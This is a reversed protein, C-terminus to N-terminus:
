AHIPIVKAAPQQGSVVAGLHRDWKALADRKEGDYGHRDYVRTIGAETHNLLKSVVLRSIGIGTMHSAATRRLDHFRFQFGLRKRLREIGWVGAETTVPGNYRVGPFVLAADPKESSRLARLIMLAEGVLPVRHSKGNKAREASITWWPAPGELDDIEAWRLGIIEGRRAATLLALKVIAAMAPPEDDLARWLARLEPENLVRDRELEKARDQHQAPNAIVLDEKLARNFMTSLLALVRNSMVPAREAIAALLGRVDARSIEGAKRDQWAAPLCRDIIRHDERWSKKHSQSWAKHATCLAGFTNAAEREEARRMAGPDGGDMVAVLHRKARERAQALSMIPWAGIKLRANRGDPRRYHVVWAKAKAGVCLSLGGRMREDYIDTQPRGEPRVFAQIFRDTL